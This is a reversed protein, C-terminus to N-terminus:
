SSWICFRPPMPLTTKSSHSTKVIDVFLWILVILASIRLIREAWSDISGTRMRAYTLYDRRLWALFAFIFYLVPLMFMYLTTYEEFRELDDCAAKQADTQEALPPNPDGFACRVEGLEDVDILIGEVAAVIDDSAAFFALVHKIFHQEGDTLTEWDKSDQALDIEEATWLSAEHKKYMEYFAPYQIPFLVWQSISAGNSRM